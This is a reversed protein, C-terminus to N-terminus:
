VIEKYHKINALRKVMDLDVSILDLRVNNLKLNNNYIYLEIADQLNKIKADTMAEHAMGFKNSTRTKVEIFVFFEERSAIIDIEKYSTKINSDIIKYGKKILYKRALSEGLKGIKQNHNM